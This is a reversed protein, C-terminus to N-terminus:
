GDAPPPAVTERPLFEGPPFLRSRPHQGNVWELVARASASAMEVLPTELVALESTPYLRTSAVSVQEPVRYGIRRLHRVIELGAVEDSAIIATPADSANMMEEVLPGIQGEFPYPLDVISPHEPLDPFEDHSKEWATSLIASSNMVGMSAMPAEQMFYAFRRHGLRALSRIMKLSTAEYDVAVHPIRDDMYRTNVGLCHIGADVLKRIASLPVNSLVLAFEIRGHQLVSVLANGMAEPDPQSPMRHVALHIPSGETGKEIAGLVQSIFPHSLSFLDRVLVAVQRRQLLTALDSVFTGKGRVRRLLGENELEDLCRRATTSSVQYRAILESESPVRSGPAFEGSAIAREMDAKMVQYLPQSKRGSRVPAPPEQTPTRSTM